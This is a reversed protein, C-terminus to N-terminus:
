KRVLEKIETETPQKFIFGFIKLWIDSGVQEEIVKMIAKVDDPSLEGDEAKDIFVDIIARVKKLTPVLAVRSIVLTGFAGVIVYIIGTSVLFDWITTLITYDM